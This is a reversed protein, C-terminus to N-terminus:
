PAVGKLVHRVIDDAAHPNLTAKQAALMQQARDPHRALNGAMKVADANNKACLSMGHARFFDRNKSECGPIPKFHILPVGAM